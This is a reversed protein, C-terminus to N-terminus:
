IWKMKREPIIIELLLLLVALLIFWQFFTNYQRQGGGTIQKKDMKSLEFLIRNAVENANTFLHYSGYTQQAIVQLEKENLKSVVTNGNEDKKYENTGPEMIPSGGPSGIGVTYVVVGSEQLEKLAEETKEDHTEGDSILIIAKYKKEKTNLSANCTKLAEGVVTGQMPVATPSANAVFM